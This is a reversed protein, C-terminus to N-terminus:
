VAPCPETPASHENLPTCLWETVAGRDDRVIRIGLDFWSMSAPGGVMVASRLELHTPALATVFANADHQIDGDPVEPCSGDARCREAVAVAIAGAREIVEPDLTAEYFAETPTARDGDVVFATGQATVMPDDQVDFSYVGPHLQSPAAMSLEEGAILPVFAGGNGFVTVPEVLSETLQWAGAAREATLPRVVEDGDVEYSVEVTAEDGDIHVLRVAPRAIPEASQLVADSVSRAARSGSVMAEADVARGEVIATLYRMATAGLRDEDAGVAAREALQIGGPVLAGVIAGVVGAVLVHRWDIGRRRAPRPAPEDRADPDSTHAPRVTVPQELAPLPADGAPPM